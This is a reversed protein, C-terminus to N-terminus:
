GEDPPEIAPELSISVETKLMMAIAGFAAASDPKSRVTFWCVCTGGEMPTLKFNKIAAEGLVLDSQGGLGRHITFTAGEMREEWVLPYHLKPFRLDPADHTQNALDHQVAGNKHFLLSRLTPSFMALLESPMNIEVEVEATPMPNEVGAVKIDQKSEVLKASQEAFEITM